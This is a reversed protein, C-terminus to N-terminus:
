ESLTEFTFKSWILNMMVYSSHGYGTDFANDHSSAKQDTTNGTFYHCKLQNKFIFYRYMLKQLSLIDYVM